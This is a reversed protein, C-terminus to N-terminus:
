MAGGTSFWQRDGYMHDSQHGGNLECADGLNVSWCRGRVPTDSWERDARAHNGEHGDEKQCQDGLNRFPCRIRARATWSSLKGGHNGPHGKPWLCLDGLNRSECLGTDGVLGVPATDTQDEEVPAADLCAENWQYGCCECTRVLHEPGTVWRGGGALQQQDPAVYEVAAESWGCKVCFGGDGSYPLLEIV